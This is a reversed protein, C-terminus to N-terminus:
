LGRRVLPKFIDAYDNREQAADSDCRQVYVFNFLSLLIFLLLVVNLVNITIIAM